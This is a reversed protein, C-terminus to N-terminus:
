YGTHGVHPCAPRGGGNGHDEPHVRGARRLQNGGRPHASPPSRHPSQRGRCGPLCLISFQAKSPDRVLFIFELNHLYPLFLM